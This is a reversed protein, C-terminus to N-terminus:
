MVEVMNRFYASSEVLNDSIRHLGGGMLFVVDKGYVELMEPIREITMGGGPSPFIPSLHGMEDQTGNVISICEEKSFSFRGGWNPYITADAGALRALQGFLAYHSFGNEPCTVYAGVFAPHMMIPLDLTADDALTRMTDFGVLGPSVLLGGAGKEKAYYANDLLAKGAFSINPAYIATMGTEANAKNVAEACLQVREKFHSFSQDAIGHDDKIIDIGGKAFQYAKEALKEASYGLPKLATCLMPRTPANLRKRLGQRGFRPGSFYQLLSDHIDFREVRIGPKISINGFIVNLLQTLDNGTNEIPFSIVATYKAEGSRELSEIRGIIANKIDGEPLLDEPFEVTQEICIDKAKALAEIEDGLLSYTVTFRNGSPAPIVTYNM